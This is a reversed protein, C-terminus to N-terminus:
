SFDVFGRTPLSIQLIVQAFNMQICKLLMGAGRRSFSVGPCSKAIYDALAVEQGPEVGSKTEEGSTNVQCGVLFRANMSKLM